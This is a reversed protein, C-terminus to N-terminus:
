HLALHRYLFHACGIDCICIFLYLPHAPRLLTFRCKTVRNACKTLVSRQWTLFHTYIQCKNKGEKLSWGSAVGVGGVKSDYERGLELM